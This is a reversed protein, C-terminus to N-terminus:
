ETEAKVKTLDSIAVIDTTVRTKGNALGIFLAEGYGYKGRTLMTYAVPKGDGDLHSAREYRRSRTFLKATTDFEYRSHSTEVTLDVNM